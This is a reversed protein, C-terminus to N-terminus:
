ICYLGYTAISRKCILDIEASFFCSIPLKKCLLYSSPEVSQKKIHGCNSQASEIKCFKWNKFLLISWFVNKYLLKKDNMSTIKLIARSKQPWNRQPSSIKSFKQELPDLYWFIFLSDKKVTWNKMQYCHQKKVVEPIYQFVIRTVLAWSPWCFGIGRRM